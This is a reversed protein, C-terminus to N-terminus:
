AVVGSVNFVRVEARGDYNCGAHLVCGMQQTTPSERMRLIRSECRCWVVEQQLHYCYNSVALSRCKPLAAASLVGVPGIAVIAAPVVRQGLATSKLGLLNPNFELLLTTCTGVEIDTQAANM